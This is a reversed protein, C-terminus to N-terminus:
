QKTHGCVTCEWWETYFGDVSDSQEWNMPRFHCKPANSEITEAMKRNVEEMGDMIKFFEDDSLNNM